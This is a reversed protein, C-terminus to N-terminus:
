TRDYGQVHCTRVRFLYLGHGTMSMVVYTVVIHTTSSMLQTGYRVVTHATGSLETHRVKNNTLSNVYSIVVVM